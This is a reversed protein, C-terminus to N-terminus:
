STQGVTAEAVRAPHGLFCGSGPQFSGLRHHGTGTAVGPHGRRRSYSGPGTRRAAAILSTISRTTCERSRSTTSSTAAHCAV